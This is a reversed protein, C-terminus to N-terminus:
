ESISKSRRRTTFTVAGGALILVLGGLAMLAANTGTIALIAPAAPYTNTVTVTVASQGGITV